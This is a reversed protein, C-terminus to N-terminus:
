CIYVSTLDIRMKLKDCVHGPPLIKFSLVLDFGGLGEVQLECGCMCEVFLYM